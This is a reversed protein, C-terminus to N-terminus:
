EATARDPDYNAVLYAFYAVGAETGLLDHCIHYVYNLTTLDDPTEIPPLKQLLFIFFLNVVVSLFFVIYMQNGFVKQGRLTLAVFTATLGLYLPIKALDPESLWPFIPPDTPYLEHHVAEYNGLPYLISAVLLIVGFLVDVAVSNKFGDAWLAFSSILFFYFGFNLVHFDNVYYWSEAVHWGFELALGFCITALGLQMVFPNFEPHNAKILPSKDNVIRMTLPILVFPFAHTLILVFSLVTNEPKAFFDAFQYIDCYDAGHALCPENLFRQLFYSVGGFLLLGFAGLGATARPFQTLSTEQDDEPFAFEAPKSKFLDLAKPEERQSFSSPSDQENKKPILSLRSSYQVSPQSFSTGPLSSPFRPSTQFAATTPLWLAAAVILISTHWGSIMM